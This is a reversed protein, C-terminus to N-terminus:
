YQVLPKNTGPYEIHHVTQLLSAIDPGICVAGLWRLSQTSVICSQCSRYCNDEQLYEAPETTNTSRFRCIDSVLAVRELLSSAELVLSM